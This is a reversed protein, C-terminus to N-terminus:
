TKQRKSMSGEGIEHSNAHGNNQPDFLASNVFRQAAKVDLKPKKAQNESKISNLRIMSSKIRDIEKKIDHKRPDIGHCTLYM